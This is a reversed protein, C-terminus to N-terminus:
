VDCDEEQPHENGTEEPRNLEGNAVQINVKMVLPRGVNNAAREMAAHVEEAFEPLPDHSGIEMESIQVWQEDWQDSGVSVQGFDSM